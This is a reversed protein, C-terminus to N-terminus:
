QCSLDYEIRLDITILSDQLVNSPLDCDSKIITINQSSDINYTGVGYAQSLLSDISQYWLSDAPVNTLTYTTYFTDLYTEEGVVLVTTFTASNFLCNQGNATDFYGEFFM